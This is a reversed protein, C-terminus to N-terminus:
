EGSVGFRTMVAAMAKETEAEEWPAQEDYWQLANGETEPAMAKIRDALGTKQLMALVTMDSADLAKVMTRAAEDKDQQVSKASFKFDPSAAAEAVMAKHGMAQQMRDIIKQGTPSAYFANLTELEADNFRKGYVLAQRRWLEPLRERMSRVAIPTMADAMTRTFGPHQAEMAKMDANAAALDGMIQRAKDTSDTGGIIMAESNLLRALTLAAPRPSAESVAISAPSVSPPRQAVGGLGLTLALLTALAM